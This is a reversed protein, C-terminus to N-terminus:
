AGSLAPNVFGLLVRTLLTRDVADPSLAGLETFMTPAFRTLVFLILLVLLLGSVLGVAGGALGDLFGIPGLKTMLHLAGCVLKLIATFAVLFIFFLLFYSLSEAMGQAAAAAAARIPETAQALAKEDFLAGLWSTLAGTLSAADASPGAATQLATAAQREFVDGVIPLVLYRAMVPAAAKAAFGAGVLAALGTFFGFM